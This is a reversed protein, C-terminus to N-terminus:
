SSNRWILRMPAKRLIQRQPGRQGGNRLFGVVDQFKPKPMRPWPKPPASPLGDRAFLYGIKGQPITVLPTAHVVYQFPILFHLGGRM